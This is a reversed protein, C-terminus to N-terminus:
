TKEASSALRVSILDGKFQKAQLGRSTRTWFPLEVVRASDVQTSQSNHSLCSGDLSNM